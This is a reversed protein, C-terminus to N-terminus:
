PRHLFSKRDDAGAAAQGPADGVVSVWGSIAAGAVARSGTALFRRRDFVTNM